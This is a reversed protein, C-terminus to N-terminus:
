YGKKKKGGGKKKKKYMAREEPTRYTPHVIDEYEQELYRMLNIAFAELRRATIRTRPMANEIKGLMLNCGRHLVKRIKGTKHCHDLVADDEILENCLACRQNQRLLLQERHPKVESYKLRVETGM